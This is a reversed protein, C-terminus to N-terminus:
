HNSGSIPEKKCGRTANPMGCLCTWASKKFLFGLNCVCFFRYKQYWLAWLCLMHNDITGKIM